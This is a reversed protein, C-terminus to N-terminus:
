VVSKRDAMKQVELNLSDVMVVVEQVLPKFDAEAEKGRVFEDMTFIGQELTRIKQELRELTLHLDKEQLQSLKADLKAKKEKALTKILDKRGALVLRQEELYKKTKEAKVKLQEVMGFEALEEDMVARKKKLNTLEEMIKDELTDIKELEARRMTLEDKLRVQTNQANEVQIKKYELEDQMERFKGSDPLAKSQVVKGAKSVRELAAVVAEQKSQLDVKRDAMQSQFSSLFSNLDQEKALLEDYKGQTDEAQSLESMPAMAPAPKAAEVPKVSGVQGELKKINELVVRAQQQLRDVEANDRKIKSKLQEVQEEPSLRTKAEEAELEYKRETLQRIQEQLSLARQKINNSSLEAEAAAVKQDLAMMEAEMRQAEPQMAQVEAMLAQYQERSTPALQSLKAEMNSQQQWIQQEVDRSRQDLGARETYISELRRRESDNKEKLKMYQKTIEEPDVNTSSKDLIMNYDSLEGQLGKVEKQLQEYKVNLKDFTGANQEFVNIEGEMQENVQLLEQKKQRLEALFYSKDLVQRGPGQGATKMGSMGQQTVPREAVQVDTNLAQGVGRNATGPRM